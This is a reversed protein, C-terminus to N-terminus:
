TRLAEPLIWAATDSSSQPSTGDIAKQIYETADGVPAVLVKTVPLVPPEEEGYHYGVHSFDPIMDGNKAPYVYPIEGDGAPYESSAEEKSCSLPIIALIAVIPLLHNM